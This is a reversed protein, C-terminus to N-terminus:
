VRRHRTARYVKEAATSKGNPHDEILFTIEERIARLRVALWLNLLSRHIQIRYREM